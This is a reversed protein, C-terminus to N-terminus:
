RSAVQVCFLQAEFQRCPREAASPHHSQVGIVVAVIVLVSLGTALLTLWFRGRTKV